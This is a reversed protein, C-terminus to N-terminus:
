LPIKSKCLESFQSSPITYPNFTYQVRTRASVLNEVEVTSRGYTGQSVQEETGAICEDSNIIGLYYLSIEGCNGDSIGMKRRQELIEPSFYSNWNGWSFKRKYINSM